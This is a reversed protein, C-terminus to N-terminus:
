VINKINNIPLKRTRVRANEFAKTKFTIYKNNVKINEHTVFVDGKITEIFNM